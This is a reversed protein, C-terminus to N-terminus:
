KRNRKKAQKSRKRAEKRKKRNICGAVVDSPKVWSRGAWSKGIAWDIGVNGLDIKAITGILKKNFTATTEGAEITM